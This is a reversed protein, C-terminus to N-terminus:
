VREERVVPFNSAEQWSRLPRGPEQFANGKQFAGQRKCTQRMKM